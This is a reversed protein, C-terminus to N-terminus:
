VDSEATKKLNPLVASEWGGALGDRIHRIIDVPFQDWGFHKLQVLTRTESLSELDIRVYTKPTDPFFWSFVFTRPPNLTEIECWTAGELDGAERKAEDPQMYFRSGAKGTYELCGLWIPITEKGTLVDWVRKRSADIEIKCVIDEVSGTM